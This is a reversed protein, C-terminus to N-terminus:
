SGNSFGLITLVAKKKAKNIEWGGRDLAVADQAMMVVRWVTMLAPLFLQCHPSILNGLKREEQM